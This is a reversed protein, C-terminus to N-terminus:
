KDQNTGILYSYPKINAGAPVSEDQIVSYAGIEAGEGIVTSGKLLCFPGIISDKGIKVGKEVYTTEPMLFTVGEAMWKERIRSLLIREATALQSRSNM